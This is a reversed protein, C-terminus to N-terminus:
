ILTGGVTYVDLRLKGDNNKSGPVPNVVRIYYKDADATATTMWFPKHCVKVGTPDPTTPAASGAYVYFQHTHPDASIRLFTGGASAVQKWGDSPGVYYNKTTTAM